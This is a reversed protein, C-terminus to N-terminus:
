HGPGVFKSNVTPRLFMALPNVLNEQGNGDKGLPSLDSINFMNLM